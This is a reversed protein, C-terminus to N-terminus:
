ASFAARDFREIGVARWDQLPRDDGRATLGEAVLWATRASSALGVHGHGCAYWLGDCRPSPGIVPLGDPTSPRHGMWLTTDACREPSALAPYSRQAHSLLVHARAWNAAAKESALEVQGALRLGSAMPTNAMRGDSPMIPLALNLDARPLVVHYGREGALPLSDGAQRAFAASGLGATILTRDLALPGQSTEVGHCRGGQIWLREVRVRELRAGHQQAAAILHTVYSGPDSCWAGSPIWIGLQYAADLAPAKSRLAEGELEQWILGQERRLQWAMAEQEFAQRHPYAYLLGNHHLLHEAGAWGALERHCLPADHLLRHLVASTARVQEWRWGARLFQWLWPLLSPLSSLRLTFPGMPDLLYGPIKKWLGPTSMPLISAPSIWGGNGHSASHTGGPTEPELLTVQHGQRALVLACCAGVIGAGVLGVRLSNMVVLQFLYIRPRITKPSQHQICNASQLM